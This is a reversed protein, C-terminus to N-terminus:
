PQLCSGFTTLELRRRGRSKNMLKTTTAASNLSPLKVMDLYMMTYKEYIQQQNLLYSLKSLCLALKAISNESFLPGLFYIKSVM